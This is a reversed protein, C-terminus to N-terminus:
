KREKRFLLASNILPLFDTAFNYFAAWAPSFVGTLVLYFGVMNSVAWIAMDGHVTAMARRAIKMVEPIRDLKDTLVVVDAAEIAVATGGSGMAIGVDSRALAPADNIGDGAMGVPGDKGIMAELEKLKQEPSMASRYKKIGLKKAIDAAVEENDGTFMIIQRVGAKRLEKISQKAEPRPEDAFAIEGAFKKDIFVFVRTKRGSELLDPASIGLEIAMGEDGIAIEKGAVKVVVGAGKKSEFDEPDPIDKIRKFAEKVIARGIPHESFKEAAAALTWFEEEGIGASIKVSSVAMTGYTLTGTKDLILTKLRSLGDLWEGGKIIVGKRAAMGIAALVAMPIAVAMDDACAVLFLATTRSLNKTLLYNILGILLVIPLFYAAFKDALKESHSKNKAAEKMLAAMRDLTSDAGTKLVMVKLMGSENLTSSLVMDGPVKEVPVSEGTVSSENILASGFIIKGDAPIRAGPNVVVIDRPKLDELPVEEISGARERKASLPKLRLLEEVSHKTKSTTKWDLLEAFSLMLAIFAASKIEGTALSAGLAFANFTDISIRRKFLDTLARWIVTCSGLVAVLFLIIQGAGTIQHALLAAALLAILIYERLPPRLVAAIKFAM